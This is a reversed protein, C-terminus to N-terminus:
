FCRRRVCSRFEFAHETHRAVWFCLGVSRFFVARLGIAPLFFREIGLLIWSVVLSNKLHDEVLFVEDEGEDEEGDMAEDEPDGKKKSLMEMLEEDEEDDSQDEDDESEEFAAIKKAQSKNSAPAVAAPKSSAPTKAAAPPKGTPTKAPTKPKPVQNQPSM